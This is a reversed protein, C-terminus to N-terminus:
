AASSGEKEIEIVDQADEDFLSAVMGQMADLQKQTPNWNKWRARRAMNAAFQREWASGATRSLRPMYFLLHELTRQM